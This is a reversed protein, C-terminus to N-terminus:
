IGANPLGCAGSGALFGCYELFLWLDNRSWSWGAGSNKRWWKFILIKLLSLASYSHYRRLPCSIYIYIMIDYSILWNKMLGVLFLDSNGHRISGLSCCLALFCVWHVNHLLHQLTEWFANYNDLYATSCIIANLIRKLTLKRLHLTSVVIGKVISRALAQCSRDYGDVESPGMQVVWSRRRSLMSVGVKFLFRALLGVYELDISVTPHIRVVAVASRVRELSWLWAVLAVLSCSQHQHGRSVM